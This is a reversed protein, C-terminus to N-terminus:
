STVEINIDEKEKLTDIAGEVERPTVWGRGVYGNVTPM